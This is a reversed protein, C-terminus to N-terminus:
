VDLPELQQIQDLNVMDLISNDIKIISNILKKLESEDQYVSETKVKSIFQEIDVFDRIYGLLERIHELMKLRFNIKEDLDSNENYQVRFKRYSKNLHKKIYSSFVELLYSKKQNHIYKQDMNIQYQNQDM